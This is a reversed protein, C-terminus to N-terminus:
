VVANSGYGRGVTANLQYITVNVIAQVGGFDTTQNAASYLVSPTSSTLTRLVTGSASKIDIEYAEIPEGVPADVYDLWEGGVRTRRFWTITLNNSGDRSGKVHVAAWPRVSAGTDVFAKAPVMGQTMGFGVAKFYHPKNLDTSVHVIRRYTTEDLLVFTELAKHTNMAWETGFRGRLLRAIRYYGGGLDTADRFQILEKGLYALNAGDLVALDNAASTLVGHHMRIDITQEDRFVMWSLRVGGAVAPLNNRRIGELTVQTVFLTHETSQSLIEPVVQTARLAGGAPGDADRLVEAVVQTARLVSLSVEGLSAYFPAGGYTLDLGNPDISNKSLTSVWPTGTSAYDLLQQNQAIPM